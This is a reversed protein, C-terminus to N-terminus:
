RREREGPYELGWRARLEDMTRLVSVTEDLPMIGSELEGARLCDMVEAAEHGFGNGEFPLEILEDPEGPKHITMAKPRWWNSHVRIYGETGMVTAEQPTGTRTAFCMTTLGGGEHELVAASQEDVGTEGLHTLGAVRSASGLVMSAMSVCYVGVDLLAGGGLEPAFLRSSPDLDVRFGFDVNLMRVEGIEGDSIRRRLERMVPMFRTWMGEMLFLERERALSIVRGAQDANVAFPKECLVPRGNELCLLSNEEHFVHPTAVYIVEVDPDAALDAYSGYAKPADFEDAFKGASAETRSGVALLEAEPLDALGAAFQHAIGGTGLIGWRIASM